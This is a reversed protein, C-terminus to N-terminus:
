QEGRECLWGDVYPRGTLLEFRTRTSLITLKTEIKM